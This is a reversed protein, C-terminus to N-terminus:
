QLSAVSSEVRGRRRRYKERLERKLIKGLPNTPLSECFEVSKPALSDRCLKERKQLWLGASDPLRQLALGLVAMYGIPRKNPGLVPAAVVNLGAM